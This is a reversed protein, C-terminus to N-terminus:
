NRPLRSPMILFIRISPHVRNQLVILEPCPGRGGASEGDAIDPCPHVVEVSPNRPKEPIVHVIRGHGDFWTPVLASYITLETGLM